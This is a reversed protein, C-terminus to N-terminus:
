FGDRIKRGDRLAAWVSLLVALFCGGATLYLAAVYCEKGQTCQTAPGSRVSYISERRLPAM